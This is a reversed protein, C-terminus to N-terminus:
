FGFDEKKEPDFSMREELVTLGERQVMKGDNLIMVEACKKVCYCAGTDVSANM